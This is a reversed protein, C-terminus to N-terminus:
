TGTERRFYVAERDSRTNLRRGGQHIRITPRVAVRVSPVAATLPWRAPSVGCDAAGASSQRFALPQRPM